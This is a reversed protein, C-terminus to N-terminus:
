LLLGIRLGIAIDLTYSDTASNTISNIISENIHYLQSQNFRGIDPEVLKHRYGIGFYWDCIYRQQFIQSSGWKLHIGQVEKNIGYKVDEGAYPRRTVSDFYRKNDRVGYGQTKYFVDLALYNQELSKNIPFYRKVEAKLVYGKTLYAGGTFCTAWNKGIPIEMGLRISNSTQFDIAALPEIFVFAKKFNNAPMGKVKQQALVAWPFLFLLVPLLKKM